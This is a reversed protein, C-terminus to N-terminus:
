IKTYKRITDIRSIFYKQYNRELYDLSLRDEIPYHEKEYEIIEEPNKTFGIVKGPNGVVIAYPPINSLVVSNANILAGRGIHVKGFAKAGWSFEVDDEIVPSALSERATDGQYGFVVGPRLTVRAGLKTEATMATRSNVTHYLKLGPGSCNPPITMGTRHSLRKWKILYYLYLLGSLLSKKRNKYFELHRLIVLYKHIYFKENQFVWDKIYHIFNKAPPNAVSDEEIYYRLDQRSKIM